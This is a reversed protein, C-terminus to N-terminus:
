LKSILLGFQVILHISAGFMITTFLVSIIIKKKALLYGALGAFTMTLALTLAFSVIQENM